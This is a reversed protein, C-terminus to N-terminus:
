PTSTERADLIGLHIVRGRGCRKSRYLARDAETMLMAPDAISPGRTAVGFSATVPRLPWPFSAIAERHRETCHLADVADAGPLLIAFEDGGYRAVTDNPRTSKLLQQAAACIVVDGASHGFSDNYSKFWDVDVMIVSLPSGCDVSHAFAAVLVDDFRRRNALGTLVDTMALAKLRQIARRDQKRRRVLEVIRRNAVALERRTVTLEALLLSTQDRRCLPGTEAAPNAAGREM